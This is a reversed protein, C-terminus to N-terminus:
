VLMVLWVNELEETSESGISNLGREVRDAEQVVPSSRCYEESQTHGVERYDM